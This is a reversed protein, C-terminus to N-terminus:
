AQVLTHTCSSPYNKAQVLTHICNLQGRQYVRDYDTRMPEYGTQMPEYGTQM